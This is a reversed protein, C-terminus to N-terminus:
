FLLSTIDTLLFEIMSILLVSLSIYRNLKVHSIVKKLTGAFTTNTCGAVKAMGPVRAIASEEEPLRKEVVLSLSSTKMKLIRGNGKGLSGTM